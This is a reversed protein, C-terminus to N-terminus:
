KSYHPKGRNKSSIEVFVDDGEEHIEPTSVVNSIVGEGQHSLKYDFKARSQKEKILLDLQQACFMISGHMKDLYNELRFSQVKLHVFPQIVHAANSKKDPGTGTFAGPALDELYEIASECTDRWARADALLKSIRTKYNVLRSYSAAISEFDLSIPVSIDWDNIESKISNIDLPTLFKLQRNWIEVEIELAEKTVGSIRQSIGSSADFKKWDVITDIFESM